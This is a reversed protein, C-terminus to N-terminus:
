FWNEAILNEFAGSALTKRVYNLAMGDSGKSLVVSVYYSVYFCFVLYCGLYVHHHYLANSYLKRRHRKFYFIAEWLREKFKYFM